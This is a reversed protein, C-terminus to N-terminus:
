VDLNQLTGVAAAPRYTANAGGNGTPGTGGADTNGSGSGTVTTNIHTPYASVSGSWHPHTTTNINHTHSGAPHTHSPGTHTHNGLDFNGLQV